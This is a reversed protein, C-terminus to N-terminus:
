GAAKAPLSLGAEAMRAPLAAMVQARQADSLTSWSAVEDLTRGCGMCLRSRADITCINICPSQIMDPKLSASPFGFM